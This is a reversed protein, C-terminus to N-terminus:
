STASCSTTLERARPEQAGRRGLRRHHRRVGRGPLPPLPLRRPEVRRRRDAPPQAPEHPRRRPSWPSAPPRRDAARRHHHHRRGPPQRRAPTRRPGPRDPLRDGHRHRHRRRLVVPVSPVPQHAAGRDHRPRHRDGASPVVRRASGSVPRGGAALRRGADGAPLQAGPELLDPEGPRPRRVPPGLPSRPRAGPPPPRLGGRQQPAARLERHAAARHRVLREVARPPPRLAPLGQDHPRAPPEGQAPDRDAQAARPRRRRRGALMQVSGSIAALPNGIEHALGAALEGVAVMRDKM